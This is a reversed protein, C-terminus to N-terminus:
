HSSIIRPQAATIELTHGIDYRVSNFPGYIRVPIPLATPILIQGSIDLTKAPLSLSGTANAKIFNNALSFNEIQILGSKASFTLMAYDFVSLNANAPLQKVYPSEQKLIPSAMTLPLASISGTGSFTAAVKTPDFNVSFNCIGSGEFVNNPFLLASLRALNVAPASARLSFQTNEATLRMDVIGTVASDWLHFIFPNLTYVGMNGEVRASLKEVTVQKFIIQDVKLNLDMQPWLSHLVLVQTPAAKPLHLPASKVPAEALSTPMYRTLNISGLHLDGTLALPSFRLRLHKETRINTSDITGSLNTLTLKIPDLNVTAHLKIVDFAKNQILHAPLPLPLSFEKAFGYLSGSVQVDLNLMLDQIGSLGEASLFALLAKAGGTISGSSTAKLSPTQLVFDSVYWNNAEVLDAKGSLHLPTPQTMSPNQYTAELLLYTAKKIGFDKLEVQLYNLSFDKGDPRTYTISSNRLIFSNPVNQAFAAWTDLRSISLATKGTNEETKQAKDTQQTSLFHLELNDIELSQLRIEGKLLSAMSMSFHANKFSFHVADTPQGWSADGVRVTPQPFLSFTPNEQWDLPAGTREEITLRLKDMLANSQTYLFLIGGGFLLVILALAIALTYKLLRPM